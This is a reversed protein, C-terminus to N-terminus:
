NSSISNPVWAPSADMTYGLTETVFNNFEQMGGTATWIFPINPDFPGSQFYGIVISGDHNIGTVNGTSGQAITGLSIYGSTESWIYPEYNNAFDGRGGIWNGDASIASCEGLQNMEDSPDGSPDLLLYENPLWVGNADKRWVASKWPGNFDQWGVVI